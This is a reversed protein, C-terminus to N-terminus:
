DELNIEKSAINVANTFGLVFESKTMTNKDTLIGWYENYESENNWNFFEIIDNKNVLGDCDEDM